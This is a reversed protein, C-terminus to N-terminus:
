PNTSFAKPVEPSTLAPSSSISTTSGDGRQRGLATIGGQFDPYLGLVLCQVPSGDGAPCPQAPPATPPTLKQWMWAM